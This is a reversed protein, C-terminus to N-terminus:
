DFYDYEYAFKFLIKNFSDIVTEVTVKGESNYSYSYVLDIKGDSTYSKKEFKNVSTEYSYEEKVEYSGNSGPNILREVIIGSQNYNNSYHTESKSFDKPNFTVKKVINGKSDYDYTLILVTDGLSNFSVKKVINGQQDYNYVNSITSDVVGSKSYFSKIEHSQDEQYSYDTEVSIGTEGYETFKVLKGLIDYEKYNVIKLKSGSVPDLQWKTESKLIKIPKQDTSVSIFGDKSCSVLSMLFAFVVIHVKNKIM